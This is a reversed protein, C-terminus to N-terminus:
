EGINARTCKSILIYKELPTNGFMSQPTIIAALKRGEM